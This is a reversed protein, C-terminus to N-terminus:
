NIPGSATFRNNPDILRKIVRLRELNAGYVDALRPPKKRRVRLSTVVGFNGGVGRIAWFLDPEVKADCRVIAGSALVMEAALLTDLGLGFGPTLPGYGGVLTFGAFGVGGIAGAVPVLGYASCGAM